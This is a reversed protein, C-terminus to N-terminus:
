DISKEQSGGEQGWHAIHPLNRESQRDFYEYMQLVQFNKSNKYNM